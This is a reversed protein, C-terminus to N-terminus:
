GGAIDIFTPIIRGPLKQKENLDAVTNFGDRM